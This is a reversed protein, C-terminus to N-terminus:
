ARRRHWRGGPGHFRHQRHAPAVRSGRARHWRRARCTRSSPRHVCSSASSVAIWSDPRSPGLAKCCRPAASLMRPTSDRVAAAAQQAKLAADRGDLVAQSQELLAPWGQEAGLVRASPSALLGLASKGANIEDLVRELRVRSAALADFAPASGRVAAGAQLPINQSLSTLAGVHERLQSQQEIARGSLLLSLAALVAAAFAVGLLLPQLRAADFRNTM